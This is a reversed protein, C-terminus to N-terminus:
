KYEIIAVNRRHLHRRWFTIAGVLEAFKAM